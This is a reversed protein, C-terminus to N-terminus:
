ESEASALAKAAIQKPKALDRTELIRELAKKYRAHEVALKNLSQTIEAPM